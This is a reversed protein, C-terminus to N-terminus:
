NLMSLMTTVELGNAVVNMYLLDTMWDLWEDSVMVSLTSADDLDSLVYTNQSDGM